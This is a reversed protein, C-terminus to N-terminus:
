TELVFNRRKGFIDTQLDTRDYLASMKRFVKKIRVCETDRLEMRGLHQRLEVERKM